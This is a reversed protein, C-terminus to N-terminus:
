EKKLPSIVVKQNTLKSEWVRFIDNSRVPDVEGIETNIFDCIVVCTDADEEHIVCFSAYLKAEVDLWLTMAYYLNGALAQHRKHYDKVKLLSEVHTAM